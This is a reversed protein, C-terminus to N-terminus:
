LPTISYSPKTHHILKIPSHLTNSHQLPITYHSPITNSHTFPIPTHPTPIPPHPKTPHQLPIPYHSHTTNSHPQPIPPHPTQYMYVCAFGGLIHICLNSIVMYHMYRLYMDYSMHILTTYIYLGQRSLMPLPNNM